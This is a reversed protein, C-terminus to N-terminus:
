TILSGSVQDTNRSFECWNLHGDFTPVKLTAVLLGEVTMVSLLGVVQERGTSYHLSGKEAYPHTRPDECCCM